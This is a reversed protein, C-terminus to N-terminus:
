CCTTIFLMVSFTSATAPMAPAVIRPLPRTARISSAVSILKSPEDVVLCFGWVLKKPLETALCTAHINQSTRDFESEPYPRLRCCGFIAFIVIAAACIGTCGHPRLAPRCFHPLFIGRPNTVPPHSGDRNNGWDLM